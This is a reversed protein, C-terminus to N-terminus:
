LGYVSQRDYFNRLGTCGSQTTTALESGNGDPTSSSVLDGASDYGLQTVVGDANITACPLSSSPPAPTFACTIRTGNLTVTNGTFLQYTTQLYSPTTTNGPPYVGTTSYLQAAMVM